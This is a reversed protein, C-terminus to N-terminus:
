LITQFCSFVHTKLCVHLDLFDFSSIDHSYYFWEAKNRQVRGFRFTANSELELWFSSFFFFLIFKLVIYDLVLCWFELKCVVCGDWLYLLFDPPMTSNCPPRYKSQCLHLRHLYSCLQVSLIGTNRLSSFWVCCFIWIQLTDALKSFRPDNQNNKKKIKM